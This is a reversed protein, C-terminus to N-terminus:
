AWVGSGQAKRIYAPYPNVSRSDSHGGFPINKDAAESGRAAKKTRRKFAELEAEWTEMNDNLRRGFARISYVTERSRISIPVNRSWALPGCCPPRNVKFLTSEIAPCCAAM